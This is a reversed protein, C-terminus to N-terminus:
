ARSKSHIKSVYEEALQRAQIFKNPPTLELFKEFDLLARQEDNKGEYNVLGLCFHLQTKDSEREVIWSIFEEVEFLVRGDSPTRFATRYMRIADNMSGQYARLFALSYRWTPDKIHQCKRIEKLALSVNNEAAFYWIARLLQGDYSGPAVSDLEDLHTKMTRLNEIDRTERWKFQAAVAQTRYVAELNIPIRRRLDEIAPINTTVSRLKQHLDEFLARSYLIDKSIFAAVAIIYRATLDIYQATIEYYTFEDESKSIIRSPLLESMEQALIKKLEEPQPTHAVMARLDLVNNLQGQIPRVRVKGFIMFMSQTAHLYQTATEANDIKLAIHEPLEIFSFKYQYNSNNLLTKLTNIFDNRFRIKQNDDEAAIAVAFGVTEKKARPLRNTFKWFIFLGTLAIAIILGQLWTIKEIEILSSSFFLTAGVVLMLLILTRPRHWEKEVTKQLPKYVFDDLLSM